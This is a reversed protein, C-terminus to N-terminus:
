EPKFLSQNSYRPGHIHEPAFLEDLEQLESDTWRVDLARLNEEVHRQKRTGPIAAIDDGRQLIWSLALQAPTCQKREALDELGRVLELNRKLNEREFRPLTRRFDDRQLETDGLTRSFIGRGLPCFAVFGIGLERCLTMVEVEPDRTWLSYESQLAAIPHVAHARRIQEPSAESLGLHRVKGATVLDAMAGITEEIAVEPDVRHLIYIDVTDTGLRRLSADIAKRIYAPTGNKGVVHGDTDWVFGFKTALVVEDRRQKIARGVLEENQGAGYSDATDLFNCGLDLSRLITATGEAPDVM